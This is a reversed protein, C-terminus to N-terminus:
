FVGYGHAVLLAGLPVGLVEDVPIVDLTTLAILGLGLMIETNMRM